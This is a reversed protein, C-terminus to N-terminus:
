ARNQTNGGDDSEPEICDWRLQSTDADRTGRDDIESAPIAVRLTGLCRPCDKGARVSHDWVKQSRCPCIMALHRLISSDRDRLEKLIM